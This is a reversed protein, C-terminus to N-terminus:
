PIYSFNSGGGQFVECTHYLDERLVGDRVECGDRFEVTVTERLSGDADYTCIEITGNELFADTHWHKEDADEVYRLVFVCQGSITERRTRVRVVGGTSGTVDSYVESWGSVERPMWSWYDEGNEPEYTNQLTLSYAALSELRGNSDFHGSFSYGDYLTETDRGVNREGWDMWVDSLWTAGTAKDRAEELHIGYDDGIPDDIWSASLYEGDFAFNCFHQTLTQIGNDVVTVFDGDYDDEHWSLYYEPVTETVLTYLAPERALELLADTDQAKLADEIEGLLVAQETDVLIKPRDVNKYLSVGGVIVVSAAVAAGTLMLPSIRRKKKEEQSPEAAQDFETGAIHQEEVLPSFEPEPLSFEEAPPAFEARPPSFECDTTSFEAPPITKEHEKM